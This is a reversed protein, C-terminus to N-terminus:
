LPQFWWGSITKTKNKSMQLESVKSPKKTSWVMTNNTLPWGKKLPMSGDNIWWQDMMSWQDMFKWYVEPGERQSLCQWGKAPWMASPLRSRPDSMTLSWLRLQALISPAPHYSVTLSDHPEVFTYGCGGAGGPFAFQYIWFAWKRHGSM